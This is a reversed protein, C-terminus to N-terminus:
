KLEEAFNLSATETPIPKFANGAQLEEQDEITKIWAAFSVHLSKGVGNVERSIQIFSEL